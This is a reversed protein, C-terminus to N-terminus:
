ASGREALWRLALIATVNNLAHMTLPALLGGSRRMLEGGILGMLFFIPFLPATLHLSAFLAAQVANAWGFSIRRALGTLLVGRFLIEEVIPALLAALLVTFWLSHQETMLRLSETLERQPHDDSGLAPLAPALIVTIIRLALFALVGAGLARPVSWRTALLLRPPALPLIVLVTAGVAASTWLLQRGFAAQASAFDTASSSSAGSVLRAFTAPQVLYFALLEAVILLSFALWVHWLRWGPGDWGPPKSARVRARGRYHVPVVLVLPLLLGVLMALLLPAIGNM